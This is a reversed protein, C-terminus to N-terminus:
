IQLTSMFVECDHKDVHMAIVLITVQVCINPFFFPTNALHLQVCVCVHVSCHTAGKVEGCQKPIDRWRMISNLVINRTECPSEM